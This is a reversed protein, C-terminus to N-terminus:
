SCDRGRTNCSVEPSQEPSRVFLRPWYWSTWVNNILCNPFRKIFLWEQWHTVYRFSRANRCNCHSPQQRVRNAKDHLVKTPDIVFHFVCLQRYPYLHWIFEQFYDTRGLVLPPLIEDGKILKSKIQRCVVFGDPQQHRVVVPVPFANSGLSFFSLWL